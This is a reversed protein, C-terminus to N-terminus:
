TTADFRAIITGSTATVGEPVVIESLIGPENAEVEIPLIGSSSDIHFAIEVLLDGTNFHDGVRKLWRNVTGFRVNRGGPM